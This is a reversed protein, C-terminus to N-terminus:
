FMILSVALVTSAVVVLLIAVDLVSSMEAVISRLVDSTSPVPIPAVVLIVVTCAPLQNSYGYVPLM